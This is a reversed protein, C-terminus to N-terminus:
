EHRNDQEFVIVSADISKKEKTLLWHADLARAFALM